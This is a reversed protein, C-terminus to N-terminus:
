NPIGVAAMAEEYTMGPHAKAVIHAATHASYTQGDGTLEARKAMSWHRHAAKSMGAPAQPLRDRGPTFCLCPEDAEWPLQCRHCMGTLITTLLHIDPRIPTQHM